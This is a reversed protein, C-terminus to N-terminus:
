LVNSKRKKVGIKQRSNVMKRWFIGGKLWYKGSKVCFIGSKVCFIGAKVV